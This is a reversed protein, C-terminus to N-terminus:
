KWLDASIQYSHESVQFPCAVNIVLGTLKRGENCTCLINVSHDEYGEIHSFEPDDARSELALVTATVPDMVGESVRAHFQGAILVPRHPTLDASSWGIQLNNSAHENM